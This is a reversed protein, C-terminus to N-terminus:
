TAHHRTRARPNPKSTEMVLRTILRLCACFWLVKGEKVDPAEQGWSLPGPPHSPCLLQHGRPQPRQLAGTGWRWERQLHGFRAETRILSVACRAPFIAAHPNPRQAAHLQHYLELHEVLYDNTTCCDRGRPLPCLGSSPIALVAADECLLSFSSFYKCTSSKTCQNCPGATKVTCQTEARTGKCLQWHRAQFGRGTTTHPASLWCTTAPYLSPVMRTNLM